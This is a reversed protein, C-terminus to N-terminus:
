ETLGIVSLMGLRTDIPGCEEDDTNAIRRFRDTWVRLRDDGIDNGEGGGIGVGELQDLRVDRRPKGRLGGVEGLAEGDVLLVPAIIVAREGLTPRGPLQRSGPSPM